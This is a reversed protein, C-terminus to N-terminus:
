GKIHQAIITDLETESLNSLENPNIPSDNFTVERPLMKVVWGYFTRRSYRDKKVFEYLGQVGGLMEFVDLFAQRLSTFKKPIGKQLKGYNNGKTFTGRKTRNVRDKRLIIKRKMV